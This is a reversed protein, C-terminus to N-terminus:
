RVTRGSTARRRLRSLGLMLGASVGALALSDPEPVLALLAINDGGSATEFATQDMGSQSGSSPYAYNIEWARGGMTFSYTSGGVFTTDTNNFQGAPAAASLM